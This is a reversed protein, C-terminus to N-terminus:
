AVSEEIAARCVESCECAQEALPASDLIEIENRRHAIAGARELTAMAESVGARRVGLMAALFEHTVPFVTRRGRAGHMLLWRALRQLVTHRVSCMVMQETTFARARVARYIRSGFEPFRDLGRQFDDIPVRIVAGEFLCVATRKAVNTRFAADIEVFGETGVAALECSAGDEAIGVISLMATVPFDVTLMPRDHETTM